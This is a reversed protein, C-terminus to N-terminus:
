EIVWEGHWQARWRRFTEPGDFRHQDEEAAAGAMFAAYLAADFGGIEPASAPPPYLVPCLRALPGGGDLHEWMAEETVSETGGFTEYDCHGCTRTGWGPGRVSNPDEIFDPMDPEPRYDIFGRPEILPGRGEEAPISLRSLFQEDGGHGHPGPFTCESQPCIRAM